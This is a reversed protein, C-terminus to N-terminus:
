ASVGVGVSLKIEYESTNVFSITDGAVLQGDVRDDVRGGNEPVKVADSALGQSTITMTAGPVTAYAAYANVVSNPPVTFIGSGGTKLQYKGRLDSGM